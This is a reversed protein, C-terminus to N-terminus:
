KFGPVPVMLNTSVSKAQMPVETMMTHQVLQLVVVMVQCHYQSAVTIQVAKVQSPAELKSGHRRSITTCCWREQHLVALIISLELIVRADWQSEIVTMQSVLQGVVCMTIVVVLLTVVLKHGRVLATM